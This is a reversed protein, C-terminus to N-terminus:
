FCGMWSYVFEPFHSISPINDQKLFHENMKSDLIGRITVFLWNNYPPTYELQLKGKKFQKLWKDKQIEYPDRTVKDLKDYMEMFVEGSYIYHEVFSFYKPKKLILEGINLDLNDFYSIERLANFVNYKNQTLSKDIKM